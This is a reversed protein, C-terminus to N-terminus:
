QSNQTVTITTNARDDGAQNSAVCTYIYEGVPLPPHIYLSGDPLPSVATGRELQEGELYWTIQLSPSDMSGTVTAHTCTNMQTTHAALLHVQPRPSATAPCRLIVATDATAQVSSTTNVIAPPVPFFSPM